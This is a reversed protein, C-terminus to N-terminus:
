KAHRRHCHIESLRDARNLRAHDVSYDHTVSNHPGKAESGEQLVRVLQGEKDGGPHPDDILIDPVLNRWPVLSDDFYRPHLGAQAVAVALIQDRINPSLLKASAAHFDRLRRFRIQVARRFCRLRNPAFPHCVHRLQAVRRFLRHVREFQHSLFQADAPFRGLLEAMSLVLRNTTLPMVETLKSDSQPMARSMVASTIPRFTPLGIGPAKSSVSSASISVTQILRAWVAPGVAGTDTSGSTDRRSRAPLSNTEQRVPGSASAPM